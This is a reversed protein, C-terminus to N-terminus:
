KCKINSSITQKIVNKSQENTYFNLQNKCTSRIDQCAALSMLELLNKTYEKPNETYLIMADASLPPKVEEKETHIGKIEKEQITAQALVRLVANHLHTLTPM